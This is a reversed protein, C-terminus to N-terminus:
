LFTEGLQPGEPPQYDCSIVMKEQPCVRLMKIRLQSHVGPARPNQLLMRGSFGAPGSSFASLRLALVPIFQVRFSMAAVFVCCLGVTPIFTAFQAADSLACSRLVQLAFLHCVQM